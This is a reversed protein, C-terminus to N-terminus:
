NQIQLRYFTAQSGITNTVSASVGTGNISVGVPTWNMTAINTASLLQYMEGTLTPFTVVDNTKTLLITLSPQEFVTLAGNAFTDTYNVQNFTGGVPTSPVINYAGVAATAATGASTLTVSGVTEGNQLGAATFQTGTFAIAQGFIKNTSDATIILGAKNVTLTGNTYSILYNAASFTGGTASGPVISYPSGNVPANSIAGSSTLTVTGVTESNKLGVPTFETSAFTVTQGYTKTRNNATIGLPAPSVSLTGNTYSIAYNGPSFTGGAAASPVISYPSSSVPASSITGASTLTVTGITESNQLGIPTFESGAFAVTQGYTKTRNNATIHLPRPNVTLVGSTYTINYNTLGANGLANTISIAYPSGGVPANSIAGTSALSASTVSDGNVLGAAIFETGPFTVPQGYIKNTDNATITLPAKLVNIPVRMTASLYARNDPTFAVTLNQGNGSQLVTGAPPIYAYNGTVGAFSNLQNGGLKAGYTIDAPTPWTITSVTTLTMGTATFNTEWIPPAAAAVNTFTGSASGYTLVQFSSNNTPVFGNNLNASFAGDLTANGSLAIQGFDTQNNIGVNLTGGTLSYTGDLSIVGSQARM